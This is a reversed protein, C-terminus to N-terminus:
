ESKDKNSDKSDPLAKYSETEIATTIQKPTGYEGLRMLERERHVEVCSLYSQWLQERVYAPTDDPLEELKKRYFELDKDLIERDRESDIYRRGRWLLVGSVVGLVLGVPGTLVMFGASMFSGVGIGVSAGTVGGAIAALSSSSRVSYQDAIEEIEQRNIKELEIGEANLNALNKSVKVLEDQRDDIM